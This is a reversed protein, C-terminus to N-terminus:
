ICDDLGPILLCWFQGWWADLLAYLWNLPNLLPSLIALLGELDFCECM